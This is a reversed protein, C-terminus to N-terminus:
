YPRSPLVYPSIEAAHAALAAVATPAAVPAAETKKEPLGFKAARRALVEDSIGLPVTSDIASAKEKPKAKEAAPTAAVAAPTAPTAPKPKPPNWPMGFREARAKQKKQEDTLEVAPEATESADAPQM